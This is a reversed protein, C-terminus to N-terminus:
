PFLEIQNAVPIRRWHGIHILQFFYFLLKHHNDFIVLSHIVSPYCIILYSVLPVRVTCLLIKLYGIIVSASCCLYMYPILLNPMFSVLVIM